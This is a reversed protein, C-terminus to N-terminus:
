SFVLMIYITFAIWPGVVGWQPFFRVILFGGLGLIFIISVASIAALWVTDGAGRLAGHYTLTAADFIQFIAAFILIKMGNNIVGIEDPVWNISANHKFLQDRFQNTKIFWSERAIYILPSKCRWCFPYSHEYMDTKFLKGEAKLDKIIVPDADKIFMGDYKGAEPKFLGNPAIAQLVPLGHEQGVM